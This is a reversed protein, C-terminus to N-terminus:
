CSAERRIGNPPLRRPVTPEHSDRFLEHDLHLLKLIALPQQCAGSVEFPCDNARAKKYVEVLAGVGCSDILRLRSLDVVVPRHHEAVAAELTPRVASVTVADLVGEIFLRTEGGDEFRQVSIDV